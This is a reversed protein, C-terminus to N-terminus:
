HMHTNREERERLILLGMRRRPETIPAWPQAWARGGSGDENPQCKQWPGSVRGTVCFSVWVLEGGGRWRGAEGSSSKEKEMRREERQSQRVCVFVCVCVNKKGQRRRLKWLVLCFSSLNIHIRRSSTSAHFLIFILYFCALARARSRLM